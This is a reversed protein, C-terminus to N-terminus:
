KKRWSKTFDLNPIEPAEYHHGGADDDKINSIGGKDTNFPRWENSEVQPTTRPEKGEAAQKRVNFYNKDPQTPAEYEFADRTKDVRERVTIAPSKPEEYQFGESSEDRID